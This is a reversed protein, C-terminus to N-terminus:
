FGKTYGGKEYFADVRTVIKSLAALWANLEENFKEDSLPVGTPDAKLKAYFDKRYPCAKM